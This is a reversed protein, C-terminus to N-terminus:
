FFFLIFSIFEVLSYLQSLSPPSVFSIISKYQTPYEPLRIHVFLAVIM